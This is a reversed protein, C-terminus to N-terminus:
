PIFSTCASIKLSAKELQQASHTIIRPPQYPKPACGGERHLDAPPENAAKSVSEQTAM